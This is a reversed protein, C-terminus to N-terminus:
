KGLCCGSNTKFVTGGFDQIVQLRLVLGCVHGGLTFAPPAGGLASKVFQSLKLGDVHGLDGRESFALVMPSTVAATCEVGDASRDVGCLPAQVVDEVDHAADVVRRQGAHVPLTVHAVSEATKGIQLVVSVLVLRHHLIVALREGGVVDEGVLKNLLVLGEKVNRSRVGAVHGPNGGEKLFDVYTAFLFSDGVYARFWHVNQVYVSM